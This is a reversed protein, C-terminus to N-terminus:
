ESFDASKSSIDILKANLNSIIQYTSDIDNEDLFQLKSENLKVQSASFKAGKSFNLKELFNSTPYTEDIYKVHNLM